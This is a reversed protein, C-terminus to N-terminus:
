NCCPDNWKATAPGGGKPSTCSTQLIGFDVALFRSRSGDRTSRIRMVLRNASRVASASLVTRKHSPNRTTCGRAQEPERGRKVHRRINLHCTSPAGVEPKRRNIGSARGETLSQMRLHRRQATLRTGPGFTTLLRWLPCWEIRFPGDATSQGKGIVGADNVGAM